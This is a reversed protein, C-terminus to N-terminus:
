NRPLDKTGDTAFQLEIQVCHNPWVAAFPCFSEPDYGSRRYHECSWDWQLNKIEVVLPYSSRPVSFRHVRSACGLPIDEFFHYEGRGSAGERTRLIVGVQLARYPVPAHSCKSGNNGSTGQAPAQKAVVRLHFRDETRLIRQNIQSPFHSSNWVVQGAKAGHLVIPGIKHYELLSDGYVDVGEGSGDGHPCFAQERPLADSSAEGAGPGQSFQYRPLLHDGRPPAPEIPTGPVRRSRDKQYPEM